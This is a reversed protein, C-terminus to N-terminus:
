MVTIFEDIVVLFNNTGRRKSKWWFDEEGSSSKQHFDFRQPVFLKKTTISSNIVTCHQGVQTYWLYNPQVIKFCSASTVLKSLIRGRDVALIHLSFSRAVDADLKNRITVVGSMEDVAFKFQRDTNYHDVYYRCNGCAYCMSCHCRYSSAMLSRLGRGLVTSLATVQGICCIHYNHRQKM